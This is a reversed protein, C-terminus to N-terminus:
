YWEGDEEPGGAAQDVRQLHIEIERRISSQTKPLAAHIGSTLLLLRLLPLLSGSSAPARYKLLCGAREEVTFAMRRM